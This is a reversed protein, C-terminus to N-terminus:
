YIDIDVMDLTVLDGIDVMEVTDMQGIYGTHLYNTSLALINLLLIASIQFIQFQGESCQSM